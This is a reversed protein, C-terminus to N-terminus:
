HLSMRTTVTYHQSYGGGGSGGGGAGGGAEGGGGWTIETGALIEKESSLEVNLLDSLRFFSRLNEALLLKPFLGGGGGRGGGGGASHDQDM